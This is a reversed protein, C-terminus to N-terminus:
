GRSEERVDFRGAMNAVFMASHMAITLEEEPLDGYAAMIMSRLEEMSRASEILRQVRVLWTDIQSQAAELHSKAALESPTDIRASTRNESSDSRKKM